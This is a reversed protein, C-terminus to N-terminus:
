RAREQSLRPREALDDAVSSDFSALTPDISVTPGVGPTLAEVTKLGHGTVLAVV